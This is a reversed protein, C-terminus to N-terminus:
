AANAPSVIEDVGIPAAGAEHFGTGAPILRGIIVNEKLGELKDLKGSVAANILVKATEQFSAASLFSETSLSVKTIGLFLEDAEAPTKKLEKVRRNEEDFIAREVTEGPLLETDGADKVYVRSFMQKIIVEVHKDNLKQGQSSYIKQTEHTLYKQVADRGKYKYLEQLDLDGETLADGPTVEQGDKVYLTFGPPIVYETDKAAEGTLTVVTKAVKVVGDFPAWEKTGDARNVLAQGQVVKEGDKVAIEDGKPAKFKLEAEETHSIRIIKSGSLSDVIREGTSTEIVRREVEQIKVKGAVDAVFAKRKPPRAEFLEEVRPLGQTIDTGAVGGTHFTRM